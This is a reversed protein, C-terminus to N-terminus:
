DFGKPDYMVLDFYETTKIHVPIVVIDYEYFEVAIFDEFEEYTIKTTGADWPYMNFYAASLGYNYFFEVTDGEKVKGYCLMQRLWSAVKELFEERSLMFNFTNIDGTILRHLDKKVKIMPSANQVFHEFFDDEFRNTLISRFRMSGFKHKGGTTFVLQLQESLLKSEMHVINELLYGVFQVGHARGDIILNIKINPDTQNVFGALSEGHDSHFHTIFVFVEKIDTTDIVAQLGNLLIPSGVEMLYAVKKDKSVFLHLTEDTFAHIVQRKKLDVPTFSDDHWQLLREIGQYQVNPDESFPTFPNPDANIGVDFAMINAVLWQRWREEYDRENEGQNKCDWDDDEDDEDDDEGM